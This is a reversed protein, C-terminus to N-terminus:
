DRRICLYVREASRGRVLEIKTPDEGARRKFTHEIAPAGQGSRFAQVHEALSRNTPGPAVDGFFDRGIARWRQIGSKESETRNMRVVTMSENLCVVGFPLDDLASDDLDDLM